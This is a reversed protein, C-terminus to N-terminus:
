PPHPAPPPRPTRAPLRADRHCLANLCSRIRFPPIRLIPACTSSLSPGLAHMAHLAHPAGVALLTSGHYIGRMGDLADSVPAGKRLTGYVTELQALLPAAEPKAAVLAAEEAKREAELGLKRMMVRKGVSRKYRRPRRSARPAHATLLQPDRRSLPPCTPTSSACARAVNRTHIIRM